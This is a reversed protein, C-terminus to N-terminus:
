TIAAAQITPEILDVTENHVVRGELASLRM